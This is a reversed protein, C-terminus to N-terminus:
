LLYLFVRTDESKRIRIRETQQKRGCSGRNRRSGNHNSRSNLYNTIKKYSGGERRMPHTMLNHKVKKKLLLVISLLFKM